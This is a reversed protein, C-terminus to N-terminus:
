SYKSPHNSPALAWQLSRHFMGQVDFGINQYYIMLNQLQLWVQFGSEAWHNQFLLEAFLSRPAQQDSRQGHTDM